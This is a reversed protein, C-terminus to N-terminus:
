SLCYKSKTACQLMTHKVILFGYDSTRAIIIELTEEVQQM